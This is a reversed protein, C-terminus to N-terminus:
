RSFRRVPGQFVARIKRSSEPAVLVRFRV